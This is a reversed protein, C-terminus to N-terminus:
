LRMAGAGPTSCTHEGVVERQLHSHVRPFQLRLYAHLAQFAAPDFSAPDEQSITPIRIAGALREIAGAPIAVARTSVVPPETATHRLTRAAIVGALLAAAFALLILTKKM